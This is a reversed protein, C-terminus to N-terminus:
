SVKFLEVNSIRGSVYNPIKNVIYYSNGDWIMKHPDFNQIDSDTLLFRKSVVKNKQLSLGFTNYYNDIFYQFGTDKARTPDLFYGMFYDTRSIADFTVGGFDTGDGYSRITLLKLGPKNSFEDIATSASDYVPITATMVDNIEESIANEFISGFIDKSIELNTNAVDISGSGSLADNVEDSKTYLFKNEQAYETNFSITYDEKNVLKGSWDVAGARDLLIEEITKLYLTEDEQKPIIGFRNFFDQILNIVKVKPWLENWNVIARAVSTTPSFTFTWGAVVTCDAGNPIAGVDTQINMKVVDGNVFDGTYTITQAGSGTGPSNLQYVAVESGNKYIQIKIYTASRWTIANIEIDATVTCNVEGDFTYTETTADLKTGYEITDISIVRTGSLIQSFNIAGVNNGKAAFPSVYTQTYKFTEGPYPIVLKLFDSDTLISGSLTLGTSELIATIISHYYFCPLFYDYQYIAGSKGWNLLVTVIGSTNTRATDIGGALWSSSAIPAIESIVKNKISDILDVFNEYIVINFSDSTSSSIILKANAIITVGEQVIKCTLATYPIGTESMESDAYGFILRNTNTWPCRISNTFSLSRRSIAAVDIKQVTLAVVTNPYLDLLDDGVFIQTM